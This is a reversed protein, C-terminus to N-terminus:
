PRRVCPPLQNQPVEVQMGDSVQITPYAAPLIEQAGPAVQYAPQAVQGNQTPCEIAEGNALRPVTDPTAYVPDVRATGKMNTGLQRIHAKVASAFNSLGGQVLQAQLVDNAILYAIRGSTVATAESTGSATTYLDDDQFWASVVDVGNAYISLIGQDNPDIVQSNPWRIEDFTTAGVVILSTDRGGHVRPTKDILNIEFNGNNGASCVVVIGSRYLRALYAGIIDIRPGQAGQPLDDPYLSSIFAGFSMNIVARAQFNHRVVDDLIMGIARSMAGVFQNKKVSVINANKAVGAYNGASVSCMHTGHGQKDSPDTETADLATVQRGAFDSHTARIGTDLLYLNVESVQPQTAASRDAFLYGPFDYFLGNLGVGIQHSLGNLLKLHWPSNPQTKFDILPNLARGSLGATVNPEDRVVHTFERHTVNGAERKAVPASATDAEDDLIFPGELSMTEVIPNDWLKKIDCDNVDAILVRFNVLEYIIEKHNQPDPISLALDKYQAATADETMLIVMATPSMTPSCTSSTSTTKTTTTVPPDNGGGGPPGAPIFHALVAAITAFIGTAVAVVVGDVIVAAGGLTAAIETGATVVTSVAEVQAITPVIGEAIIEVPLNPKAIEETVTNIVTEATKFEKAAAEANKQKQNIKIKLYYDLTILKLKITRPKMLELIAERDLNLTIGQQTLSVSARKRKKQAAEKIAAYYAKLDEHWKTVATQLQQLLAQFEQLAAAYEADTLLVWASDQYLLIRNEGGCIETLDGNCYDSCEAMDKSTQYSLIDGWYCEGNNEVGAYQYGNALEACKEVTMGTPSYDVSSGTTLVRNGDADAFCGISKFTGSTPLVTPSVPTTTPISISTPKSTTTTPPATNPDGSCGNANCTQGSPCANCLQGVSCQVSPRDCCVTEDIYCNGHCCVGQNCGVAQRNTPNIACFSLGANPVCGLTGEFNVCREGTPCVVNAPCATQECLFGSPCSPDQSTSRKLNLLSANSALLPEIFQAPAAVCVTILFLLHVLMPISTPLAM